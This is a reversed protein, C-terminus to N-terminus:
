LINAKIKALAKELQSQNCCLSIRIYSEGNKGFIFGPTIFVGTRELVLDSIQEGNKGKPVKAWVFMGVQDKDYNCNLVDMIQFVIERRLTYEKNISRFWTEDLGLAEVAALQIGKYMGSDMNSKFKMVTQIVEQSAALCGVRWGAMNYSKSLSTLEVACDMAGAIELISTPKDNLIFSYPNDHCLLINSAKAFAILEKFFGIDAKAGTPMHPYNVWMLKIDGTDLKALETLDPKWNNESTLNYKIVEGGALKTASSYSPYGPDPILVKDGPNLFSMSIHMIGEKSGILPLIEKSPDLSVNFWRKYWESFATRLPLIGKYSQYKNSTEERSAENLKDIVKINPLLDPSGIGLNIIEKGQDSLADLEALKIAFYYTKVSSLREAAEIIM